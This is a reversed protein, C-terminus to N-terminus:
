DPARVEGLVPLLLEHRGALAAVGTLTSTVEVPFPLLFVLMHPSVLVLGHVWM